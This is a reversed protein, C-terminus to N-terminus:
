PRPKSPRALERRTPKDSTAPEAPDAAPPAPAPMAPATTAGRHALRSDTGRALRLTWQRRAAEPDANPRPSAVLAADLRAEIRAWEARLTGVNAGGGLLSRVQQRASRVIAGYRLALDFDRAGIAAELMPLENVIVGALVARADAVQMTM